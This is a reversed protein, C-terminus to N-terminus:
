DLRDISSAQPPDDGARAKPSRHSMRCLPNGCAANKFDKSSKNPNRTISSFIFCTPSWFGILFMFADILLPDFILSFDLLFQHIYYWFDMLFRDFILSFSTWPPTRPRSQPYKLDHQNFTIPKPRIKAGIQLTNLADKSWSPPDQSTKPDLNPHLMPWFRDWSSDSGSDMLHDIQLNIKSAIQLSSPEMRPPKQFDLHFWIRKLDSWFDIKLDIM